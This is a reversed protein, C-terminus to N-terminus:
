SMGGDVWILCDEWCEPFGMWQLPLTPHCSLLSQLREGWQSQPAAIRVLYKLITLVSFIRNQHDMLEIPDHWKSDDRPIFPKIALERNWLRSHHACINRIYNLCKLWSHFVKSPVKFYDAIVVQDHKSLCNFLTFMNGFTMIEVAMWLPLDQNKYKRTFHDLFVERSRKTNSRIQNVLQGITSIDCAVDFNKQHLHPQASKYKQTFHTTIQAKVAVEVREIADMVLLRLQRDFRYQDWVLELTTGPKFHENKERYPYLYASLRYYNVNQLHNVLQDKDAILGRDLLLEAQKEFSLPPKTYKM